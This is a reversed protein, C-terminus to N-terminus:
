TTMLLVRNRPNKARTFLRQLEAVSLVQPLQSLATRPPLNLYLPEWGLTKTSCFRLGCAVQHCASWSRHRDVLVPHLYRRMQDPSLQDPSRHSFTALGAVAAVSAAQTKPALRELQMQYIMQARLPTM